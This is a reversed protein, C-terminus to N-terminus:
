EIQECMVLLGYPVVEPDIDVLGAADLHIILHPVYLGHLNQKAYLLIDSFLFFQTDIITEKM